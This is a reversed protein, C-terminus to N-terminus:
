RKRRKKKRIRKAKAKLKRDEAFRESVHTYLREFYFLGLFFAITLMVWVLWRKAILDIGEDQAWLLLLGTIGPYLLMNRFSARLRRSTPLRKAAGAYTIGSLLLTVVIMAMFIVFYTM